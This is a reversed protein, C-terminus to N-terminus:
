QQKPAFQTELVKAYEALPPLGVEARRADVNAEDEIPKPQLKGNIHAFQTGYRQKQGEALLVRDTLYALNQPAVEDKPLKAMLDLCRRQFKTDADAHQILLWAANAGDKGVLSNSPWGHQKLIGALWKTNAADIERVKLALQEFEAKKEPPFSASNMEGGPANGRLWDVMALRASQDQEVRHLLEQRLESANIEPAQPDAGQPETTALLLFAAALALKM